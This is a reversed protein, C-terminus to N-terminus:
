CLVNNLVCIAGPQNSCPQLQFSWACVPAGRLESFSNETSQFSVGVTAGEDSSGLALLVALPGKLSAEGM